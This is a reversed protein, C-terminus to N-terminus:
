RTLYQKPHVSSSMHQDLNCVLGKTKKAADDLRGTLDSCAHRPKHSIFGEEEDGDDVGEYRETIINQM